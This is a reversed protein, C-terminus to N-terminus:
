VISDAVDDKKPGIAKWQEETLYRKAIAKTNRKTLKGTEEAGVGPDYTNKKAPHIEYAQPITGFVSLVLDHIM